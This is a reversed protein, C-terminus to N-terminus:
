FVQLGAHKANLSVTATLLNLGEQFPASRSKETVSRIAGNLVNILQEPRLQMSSRKQAKIPEGVKAEVRTYSFM